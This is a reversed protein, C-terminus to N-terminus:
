RNRQIGFIGLILDKLNLTSLVTLATKDAQRSLRPPLRSTGGSATALMIFAGCPPGRGMDWLSFNAFIWDRELNSM